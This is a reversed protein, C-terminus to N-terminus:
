LTTGGFFCVNLFHTKFVQRVSRSFNRQKSHKKPQRKWGFGYLSLSSVSFGTIHVSWKLVRSTPPIGVGRFFIFTLQSFLSSYTGMYTPYYKETQSISLSTPPKGIYPFIFFRELGGVLGATHNLVSGQRLSGYVLICLCQFMWLFNNNIEQCCKRNLWVNSVMHLMQPYQVLKQVLFVRQYVLM